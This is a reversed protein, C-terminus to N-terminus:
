DATLRGDVGRGGVGGVGGGVGVGLARHRNVVAATLLDKVVELM